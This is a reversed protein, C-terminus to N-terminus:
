ANETVVVDSDTVVFDIVVEQVIGNFAVAVRGRLTGNAESEPTTTTTDFRVAFSSVVKPRSSIMPNLITEVDAQANTLLTDDIYKQVYVRLSRRIERKIYNVARVIPANSLPGVAKKGSKQSYLMQGVSPDTVVTNGYAKAIAVRDVAKLRMIAGLSPGTLQGGFGNVPDNYGAFPAADFLSAGQALSYVVDATASLNVKSSGYAALSYILRNAVAIFNKDAQYKTNLWTLTDPVTDAPVPVLYSSERYYVLSLTRFKEYVASSETVDCFIDVRVDESDQYWDWTDAIAQDSVVGRSGGLFETIPADLTYDDPLVDSLVKAGIFLNNEVRSELFINVGYGDVTGETLAFKITALSQYGSINKRYLTAFFVEEGEDYSASLYLRAGGSYRAYFVALADVPISAASYTFLVKDDAPIATAPETSSDVTITQAPVSYVVNFDTYKLTYVGPSTQVVSTASLANGGVTLITSDKRIAVLPAGVPASYVLSTLTGDGTGVEVEVPLPVENTMSDIDKLDVGSDADSVLGTRTLYVAGSLGTGDDPAALLLGCNRNAMIAALVQGNTTSPKGCFQIIAQENAAPIYVPAQPGSEAKIVMAAVRDTAAPATAITVESENFNIVEEYM